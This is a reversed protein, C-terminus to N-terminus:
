PEIGLAHELRAIREGLDMAEAKGLCRDLLERVAWSKGAKAEVVLQHLVDEIDQRTVTAALAARWSAVARVHPSGPGGANGPAFRGLGDRGNPGNTTPDIM